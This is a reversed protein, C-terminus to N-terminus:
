SGALTELQAALKAVVLQNLSVGERKAERELAIHLSQPLRVVFKGSKKPTAGEVLGHADIASTLMQRIKKYQETKIFAEREAPTPFATTILGNVPNFLANSLDAWSQAAQALKDAERVIRNPNKM